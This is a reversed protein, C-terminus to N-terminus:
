DMKRFETAWNYITTVAVGYREALEKADLNLEYYLLDFEHKSPQKNKRGKPKYKKM